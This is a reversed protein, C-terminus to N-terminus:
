MKILNTDLQLSSCPFIATKAGEGHHTNLELLLDDWKQFVKVGDPYHDNVYGQNITPAFFLLRRGELPGKFTGHKDRRVHHRMGKGVLGHEGIGESCANIIVITGGKRVIEKDNDRSGWVNLANLSLLFWTDRPFANFIGVDMNYPVDTAYARSAVRSAEFFAKLPHGAFIGATRGDSTSTTNVLFDLGAMDMAEEIDDRRSNGDIQGITGQLSKNVPKHNVDISDIGALGPMVIKGGGSFGAYPHPVLTGIGIKLDARIFLKDIYVPTGSSTKGLYENNQYPNHNYVRFNKVIESGLKKIVDGHTLARHTGTSMLFYIDDSRVGGARLEEIVFPIIRFAETPKTLDDVAICVVSKGKALEFLKPCGIPSSIANKIDQDGAEKSDRMSAITIKWNDSLTLDLKENGYWSRWPVQVSNVPKIHNWDGVNMISAVLTLDMMDDINVSREPPMIYAYSTRGKLSRDNVVVDRRAAYIGGNRIYLPPLKQRPINEIGENTYDELVEGDISKMRFPHMPGVDAVSIVSDANSSILKRISDDIDKSTRLPTTPQLMVVIDYLQGEKMEVTTIAHRMVDIALADDTALNMPRIFPTEAGYRRSISLIEDDDSSVIVRSLGKARLAEVITYAILPRGLLPTINKRKISKSNGRAPIVGLVRTKYNTM